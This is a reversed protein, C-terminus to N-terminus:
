IKKKKIKKFLIRKKDYISINTAIGKPSMCSPNTGQDHLHPVIRSSLLYILKRTVASVNAMQHDVCGVSKGGNELEAVAAPLAAM